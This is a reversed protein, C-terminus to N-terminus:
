GGSGMSNKPKLGCFLLERKRTSPDYPALAKPPGEEKISAPLTESDVHNKKQKCTNYTQGFLVAKSAQRLHCWTMAWLWLLLRFM